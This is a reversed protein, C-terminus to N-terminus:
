QLLEICLHDLLYFFNMCFNELPNATGYVVIQLLKNHTVKIYEHEAMCADTSICLHLSVYTATPM